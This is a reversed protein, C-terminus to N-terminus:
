RLKLWGSVAYIVVGVLGGALAGNIRIFQLDRGTQLELERVLATEDWGALRETVLEAVRPRAALIRTKLAERITANVSRAQDPTLTVERLRDALLGSLSTVTEDTLLDAKWREGEETLDADAELRAAFGTIAADLEVRWPHDPEAAATLLDGAAGLIRDALMRDVFKPTWGGGRAVIAERLQERHDAMLGSLAEMAMGSLRAGREPTWLRALAAGAAPAAPVAAVASRVWRGAEARLADEPVARWVEPLLAAADFRALAQDVIDPTLLQVGIFDGLAAGIRRRNKPILATHPIPLGLPKRFLATVAFWDALGGALGAEAFAQLWGLEPVTRRGLAAILYLGAMGVLTANAFTKMRALGAGRLARATELDRAPDREPEPTPPTLVLTM